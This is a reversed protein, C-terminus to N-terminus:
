PKAKKQRRLKRLTEALAQAIETAKEPGCHRLLKEVFSRSESPLTITSKATRTKKPTPRKGTKMLEEMFKKQERAPMKALRTINGRTMRADHSLIFKKAEEGCNAAILDAAEALKADRRITKEGVGFEEALKTATRKHDSQGCTPDATKGQHKTELYRKGRLYSAAEPTLNRRGLQNHIIFSRAAQRDPFEREITQFAIGHKQCLSFRNHGDLLINHGKWIVLPDRCAKEALLSQELQALEDRSLPPILGAFEPDIKIETKPMGNDHSTDTEVPQSSPGKKPRTSKGTSRDSPM